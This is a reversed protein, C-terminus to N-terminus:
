RHAKLTHGPECLSCCASVVPPPRFSFRFRIWSRRVCLSGWLRGTLGTGDQWSRELLRPAATIEQAVDATAEPGACRLMSSPSRVVQRMHRRSRPCLPCRRRILAAEPVFGVDVGARSVEPAKPGIVPTNAVTRSTKSCRRITPSPLLRIRPGNRWCQRLALRARLGRNNLVPHCRVIHDIPLHKGKLKSRHRLDRCCLRWMAM